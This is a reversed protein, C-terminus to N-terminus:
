YLTQMYEVKMTSDNLPFCLTYRSAEFDAKFYINGRISEGHKLTTKRIVQDAWYSLQNEKMELKYTSQVENEEGSVFEFAPMLRLPEMCESESAIALSAVTLAAGAVGIAIGLALDNKKNAELQNREKEISILKVEPDIANNYGSFTLEEGKEDFSQYYFVTPNIQVESGSHNFIEMNFCLEHGENREFVTFLTIDPRETKVIQRGQSWSLEDSNSTLRVVKSRTACSALLFLMLSISLFKQYMTTQFQKLKYRHNLM